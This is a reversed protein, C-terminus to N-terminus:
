VGRPDRSYPTQTDPDVVDCRIILTSAECFPDLIATTVDPTLLLDSKSIEQWGCLSSGDFAKGYKFFNKDVKNSPITVHHEKGRLDTFRLDVFEVEHEEILEHVSASM